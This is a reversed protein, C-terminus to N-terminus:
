PQCRVKYEAVLNKLDMAMCPGFFSKWWGKQRHSRIGLQALLMDTYDLADFFFWSGLAGKNLYRRQCWSVTEDIDQQMDFKGPPLHGDLYAVAWLGQVEAVRFNNGVVLKGLFLISQADDELIPVMARYLRFPTHLPMERRYRPRDRLSLFHDDTLNPSQMLKEEMELTGGINDLAVPLGMMEAFTPSYLSSIPNWGTCLVIIDVPLVEGHERGEIRPALKIADASVQKIDNRYVHVKSAITSYFDGRQNIGSSDNQWFLRFSFNLRSATM